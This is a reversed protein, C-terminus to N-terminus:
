RWWVGFPLSDCLAHKQLSNLLPVVLSAQAFSVTSLNWNQHPSPQYLSPEPSKLPGVRTRPTLSQQELNISYCFPSIPFMESMYHKVVITGHVHPKRRRGLQLLSNRLSLLSVTLIYRSENCEFICLFAESTTFICAKTMWIHWTQVCYLRLLTHLLWHCVKLRIIRPHNGKQSEQVRLYKCPHPVLGM